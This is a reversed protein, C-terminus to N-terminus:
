LEGRRRLEAREQEIERKAQDWPLLDAEGREIKEADEDFARIAEREEERDELEELGDVFASLTREADEIAQLDKRHQEADRTADAIVVDPREDALDRVKREIRALAASAQKQAELVQRLEDLDVIAEIPRGEADVIYRTSMEDEGGVGVDTLKGERGRSLRNDSIDTESVM